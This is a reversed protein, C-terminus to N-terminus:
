TATTHHFTGDTELAVTAIVPDSSGYDQNWSLNGIKVEGYFVDAGAVEDPIYIEISRRGPPDTFWWSQLLQFAENGGQSYLVILTINADRLGDVKIAWPSDGTNARGIEHIFEPNVQTSSGSIDQLTGGANDLKVKCDLASAASTTQPM